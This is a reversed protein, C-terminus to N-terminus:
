TSHGSSPHVGLCSSVPAKRVRAHAATGPPLLQGAPRARVGEDHLSGAVRHSTEHDVSKPASTTYPPALPPGKAARRGYSFKRYRGGGTVWKPRGGSYRGDAIQCTMLICRKTKHIDLNRGLIAKFCCIVGGFVSKSKLKARHGHFCQNQSRNLPFNEFDGWFLRRGGTPFDTGGM